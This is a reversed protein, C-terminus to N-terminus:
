LRWGPAHATPSAWAAEVQECSGTEAMNGWSQKLDEFVNIDVCNKCILDQYTSYFMDLSKIAEERIGNQAFRKDLIAMLILQYRHVIIMDVDLGKISIEEIKGLNKAGFLSLAGAFSSLLAPNIKKDLILDILYEGSEKCIVIGKLLDLDINDVM